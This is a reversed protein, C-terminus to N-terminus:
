SSPCARAAALNAHLYGIKKQIKYNDNSIENKLIDRIVTVAYLCFKDGHEQCDYKRTSKNGEVVIEYLVFSRENTKLNITGAYPM